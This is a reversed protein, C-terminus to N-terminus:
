KFRKFFQTSLDAVLVNIFCYLSVNDGSLLSLLLEPKTDSICAVSLHATDPGSLTPYGKVPGTIPWGAYSDMWICALAACEYAPHRGMGDDAASPTKATAACSESCFGVKLISLITQM